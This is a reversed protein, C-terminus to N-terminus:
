FKVDLNEWTLHVKNNVISYTLMETFAKSKESKTTIRLVDESDKYDYAGWQKSVKNFIITWEKEGPIAFFGYTGAPLTKSGFTIAKDTEFTTAENAGARWVKGFPVLDGWIKRGKVSPQSYHIKVSAGGITGSADAPPSAPKGGNQASIQTSALAMLSTFLTFVILKKMVIRFKTFSIKSYYNFCRSNLL